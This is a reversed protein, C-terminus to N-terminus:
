GKTRLQKVEEDDSTERLRDGNDRGLLLKQIFNTLLHFNLKRLFTEVGKEEDM